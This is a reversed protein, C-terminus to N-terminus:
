SRCKKGGGAKPANIKVGNKVPAPNAGCATLIAIIEAQAGNTNM